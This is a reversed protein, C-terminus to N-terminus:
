RYIMLTQNLSLTTYADSKMKQVGTFANKVVSPDSTWWFKVM